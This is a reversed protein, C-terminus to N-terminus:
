QPTTKRKYELWTLTILFFDFAIFGSLIVSHNFLFRVFMYATFALFCAIAAPYAWLKGRLLSIVLFINVAGYFFLYAGIFYQTGYSFHPLRKFLLFFGSLIELVGSIGKMFITVEFLGHTVKKFSEKNDM